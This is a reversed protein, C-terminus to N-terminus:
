MRNVASHLASGHAMSEEDEMEQKIKDVTAQLNEPTIKDLLKVIRNNIMRLKNVERRLAAVERMTEDHREAMSEAMERWIKIAAEVNQIEDKKVAAVEKEAEAIAKRAKGSAEQKVSKLTVLTVFLGAGFLFNLILSILEVTM